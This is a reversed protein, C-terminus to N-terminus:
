FTRYEFLFVVCRSKSNALVTLRRVYILTMVKGVRTSSPPRNSVGSEYGYKGRSEKWLKAM